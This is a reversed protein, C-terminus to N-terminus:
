IRTLFAFADFVKIEGRRSKLINRCGGEMGEKREKSVRVKQVRWVMDTEKKRLSDMRKLMKVRGQSRENM